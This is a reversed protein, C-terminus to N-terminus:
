MEELFRDMRARLARVHADWASKSEALRADERRRWRYWIWATIGALLAAISAWIPVLSLTGFLAAYIANVIMSACFSTLVLVVFATGPDASLGAKRQADLWDPVQTSADLLLEFSSASGPEAATRAMERGMADGLRDKWGRYRSIRPGYRRRMAALLAGGTLFAASTAGIIPTEWRGTVLNLGNLALFLGILLVTWLVFAGLVVLVEADTYAKRQAEYAQEAMHLGSSLSGVLLGRVEDNASPTSAAGSATMASLGRVRAFRRARWALAVALAIAPTSGIVSVVLFALLAWGALTPRVQYSLVAGAETIRSRFRVTSLANVQALVADPVATTSVGATRLTSSLAERIDGPSRPSTGIDVERLFVAPLVALAAVVPVWLFWWTPLNVILPIAAFVLVTLLIAMGNQYREGRM